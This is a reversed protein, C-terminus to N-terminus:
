RKGEDKGSDGDDQERSAMRQIAQRLFGMQQEVNRCADCMVLHLRLKAREAPPLTADQRESLLRSVENCRLRLTM